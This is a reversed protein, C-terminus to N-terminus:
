FYNDLEKKFCNLYAYRAAKNHKLPLIYLLQLMKMFVVHHILGFLIHGKYMDILICLLKVLPQRFLNLSIDLTNYIQIM